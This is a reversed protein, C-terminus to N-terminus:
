DQAQAAAKDDVVKKCISGTELEIRDRTRQVKYSKIERIEEAAISYRGALWNLYSVLEGIDTELDHNATQRKIQVEDKSMDPDAATALNVRRLKNISKIPAALHWICSEIDNALLIHTAWSEIYITDLSLLYEMQEVMVEVDAIEEAIHQPDGEAAAQILEALEETFHNMQLQAGYYTASKLNLETIEKDTM